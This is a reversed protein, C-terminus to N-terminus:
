STRWQTSKPSSTTLGSTSQESASTWFRLANTKKPSTRKTSSSSCYSTRKRHWTRRPDSFASSVKLRVWSRLSTRTGSTPASLWRRQTARAFTPLWSTSCSSRTSSCHFFGFPGCLWKSFSPSSVQLDTIQTKQTIIRMITLPMQFNPLQQTSQCFSPAWIQWFVLSSCAALSIWSIM